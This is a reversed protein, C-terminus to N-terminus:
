RSVADTRHHVIHLAGDHQFLQWAQRLAHLDGVRIVSKQEHHGQGTLRVIEPRPVTTGSQQLQAVGTARTDEGRAGKTSFDQSVEPKPTLDLM